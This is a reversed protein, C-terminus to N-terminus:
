AQVNQRIRTYADVSFM